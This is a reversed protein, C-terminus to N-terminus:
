RSWIEIHLKVRRPEVGIMAAIKARTEQVLAEVSGTYSVSSATEKLAPSLVAAGVRSATVKLRDSHNPHADASKTSVSRVSGDEDGNLYGDEVGLAAAAKTLTAPRPISRNKEWNWVATKSVGVTRALLEQTIGKSRRCEMIRDGITM